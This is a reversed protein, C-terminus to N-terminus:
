WDVWDAFKGKWEFGLEWLGDIHSVGDCDLLLKLDTWIFVYFNYNM